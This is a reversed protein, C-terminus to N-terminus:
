EIFNITIGKNSLNNICETLYEDNHEPYIIKNNKADEFLEDAWDFDCWANEINLTSGRYDCNYWLENPQYGRKKM